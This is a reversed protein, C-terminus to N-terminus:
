SSVGKKANEEEEDRIELMGNSVARKFPETNKIDNYENDSLSNLGGEFTVINGLNWKSNRNFFILPM